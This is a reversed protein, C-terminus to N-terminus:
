TLIFAPPYTVFYQVVIALMVGSFVLGRGRKSNVETFWLIAGVLVVIVASIRGIFILFEWIEAFYSAILNAFDTLPSQLMFLSM